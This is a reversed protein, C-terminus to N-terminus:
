NNNRGTKYGIPKRPPNPPNILYNRAEYIDKFKRNMEKELAEIQQKLEKYDMYHQRLLVFARVITVNVNIARDSKLISALLPLGTNPLLMLCIDQGAKRQPKM